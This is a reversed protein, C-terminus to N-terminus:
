RGCRWFRAKGRVSRVVVKARCLPCDRRWRVHPRSEVPPVSRHRGETTAKQLAARFSPDRKQWRCVTAVHVGAVTAATRLPIGRRRLQILTLVAPGKRPDAEWDSEVPLQGPM